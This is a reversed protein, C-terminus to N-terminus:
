FNIQSMIKLLTVSILSIASPHIWRQNAFRVRKIETEGKAKQMMLNHFYKDYDDDGWRSDSQSFRVFEEWEVELYPRYNMDSYESSRMRM